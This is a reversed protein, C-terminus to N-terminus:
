SIMPISMSLSKHAVPRVHEEELSFYVAFEAEQM